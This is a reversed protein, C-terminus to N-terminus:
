IIFLLMFWLRHVCKEKLSTWSTSGLMTHWQFVYKKFNALTANWDYLLSCFRLRLFTYFLQQGELFSLSLFATVAAAPNTNKNKRHISLFVNRRPAVEDRSCTDYHTDPQLPSSSYHSSRKGLFLPVSDGAKQWVLRSVSKSLTHSAAFQNLQWHSHGKKLATQGKQVFIGWLRMSFVSFEWGCKKYHSSFSNEYINTEPNVSKQVKLITKAKFEACPNIPSFSFNTKGLTQSLQAGWCFRMESGEKPKNRWVEFRLSIM